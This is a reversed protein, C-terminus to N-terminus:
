ASKRAKKEVKPPVPRQVKSDELSHTAWWGERLATLARVYAGASAMSNRAEWRRKAEAEILEWVARYAGEDMEAMVLTPSPGLLGAGTENRVYPPGEEKPFADRFETYHHETKPASIRGTALVKTM